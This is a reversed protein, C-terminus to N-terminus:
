INLDTKQNQLHAIIPSWPNEISEKVNSIFNKTYKEYRKEKIKFLKENLLNSYDGDINAIKSGLLQSMSNAILGLYSRNIDQTTMFLIPKRALVAFSIATSAHALVLYSNIVLEATKNHVITRGGMRASLFHDNQSSPHAAIKVPANFHNELEQFFHNLAAFYQDRDVPPIINLLAFDSGSVLNDDIFIIYKEKEKKILQSTRTFTEFNLSPVFFIEKCFKAYKTNAKRGSFIGILPRANKIQQMERLDSIRNKLKQGLLSTIQLKSKAIQNSSISNAQISDNAVRKTYIRPLFYKIRAM